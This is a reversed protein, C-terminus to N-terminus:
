KQSNNNDKGFTYGLGFCTLGFSVVAEVATNVMELAMVLGFLTLCICWEVPTIHFLFGAIVVCVMAVCHIKMNREKTVVAFIGAFAYGFSKYLPDKKQKKM